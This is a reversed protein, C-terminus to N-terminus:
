VNVRQQNVRAATAGPHTSFGINHWKEANQVGEADEQTVEKAPLGGSAGTLVDRLKIKDEDRIMGANYAAASQASAAFGGPIVVSSGTARVEAERVAAADSQDVPKSGATQIAAELAQGMTIKGQNGVGAATQQGVPVQVYQGVVQGAVTETIVGGGPVETGTITVGKDRAIDNVDDRGVVGARENIRAASQMVEAPGGAQPQGFATTEASQMLEADQPAVPKSTLEGSVNFIDGYKIPDGAQPRQPQEQSM